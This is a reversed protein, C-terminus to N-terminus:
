SIPFAATRTLPNDGAENEVSSVHVFSVGDPMRFSAYRLGPPRTEALEEFVRRILEMNEEARGPKVKYRVMVTKM